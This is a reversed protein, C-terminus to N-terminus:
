LPLDPSTKLVTGVGVGCVHKGMVDRVLRAAMFASDCFMVDFGFESDIEQIDAFYAEVNSLFVKEFDFRILAPGKLRAREPFVSDLNDGRIDRARRFALHPVGL